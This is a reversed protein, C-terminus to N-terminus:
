SVSWPDPYFWPPNVWTGDPQLNQHASYQGEDESRFRTVRIIVADQNVPEMVMARYHWIGTEVKTTDSVM